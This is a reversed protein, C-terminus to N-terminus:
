GQQHKVTGPFVVTEEKHKKGKFITKLSVVVNKHTQLRCQCVHNHPTWEFLCCPVKWEWELADLQHSGPSTHLLATCGIQNTHQPTKHGKLKRWRRQLIGGVARCHGYAWRETQLQQNCALANWKLWYLRRFWWGGVDEPVLQILEGLQSYKKKSTASNINLWLQLFFLWKCICVLYAMKRCTQSEREWFVCSNYMTM